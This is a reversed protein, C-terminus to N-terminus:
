TRGRAAAVDDWGGWARSWRQTKSRYLLHVGVGLAAAAAVGPWLWPAHRYRRISGLLVTWKVIRFWTPQARPSLAM